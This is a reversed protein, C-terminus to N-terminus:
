QATDFRQRVEENDTQLASAIRDWAEGLDRLQRVSRRLDAEVEAATAAMAPLLALRDEVSRNQFQATREAETGPLEGVLENCLTVCEDCIYIGPGAILRKVQTNNKKCFSCIAMLEKTNEETSSMPEEELVRQVLRRAATYSEGTAASRARVLRKLHKRATM